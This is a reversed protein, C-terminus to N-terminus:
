LNADTRDVIQGLRSHVLLLKLTKLLLLYDISLASGLDSAIQLVVDLQRERVQLCAPGEKSYALQSM